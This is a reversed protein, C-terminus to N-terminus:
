VLGADRARILAQARDNVQLKNLINSVHNRVTKLSLVLRAAIAENNLGQGILTLVERERDTLEPFLQQQAPLQPASFFQMVRRAIAPSFIAEGRSVATVSRVLDDLRADKLLYGRAGARLAAFVSDDDDFMTVILVGIHPSTHLIARTADIGNMGPMKIDMLVVDPQLTDAQAVAESGTTAEGIVEAEPMAELMARVGERYFSHDDAILIRIREAM